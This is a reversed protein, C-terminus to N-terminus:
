PELWACSPLGFSARVKKTAAAAMSGPASFVITYRTLLHLQEYLDDRKEHYACDDDTDGYDDQASIWHFQCVAFKAALTPAGDDDVNIALIVRYVSHCTRSEASVFYKSCPWKELFWYRGGLRVQSSARHSTRESGPGLAVRLDFM